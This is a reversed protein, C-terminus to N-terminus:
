VTPVPPGVPPQHAGVDLRFPPYDPTMFTAFACVRFVWRNLGLVLEFIGSPYDGRVLLLVAAVLLLVGILSPGWSFAGGAMIGAIVYQPIGLLWWGILRVGRRQHEPYDIALRAPYDPVDRLTFPPYRDTALASYSYFCVRWSWRLVGLNFDFVRRPYRGTFLIAVFAVVTLLIFAIWLFVLVVVHPIVLLWKVLWLWRSLGPQLEGDIRVSDNVAVM